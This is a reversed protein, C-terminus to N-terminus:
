IQHEDKGGISDPIIHCKQLRKEYGCRWCRDKAEAWDVSLGCEDQVSSWYAVIQKKTTKINDRNNKRKLKEQLKQNQTELTQNQIELKQNQEQLQQKEEEIEKIRKLLEEVEM